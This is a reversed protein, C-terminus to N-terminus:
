PDQPPLDDQIVWTHGTDGCPDKHSPSLTPPDFDSSPIHRHFCLDSLLFSAVSQLHLFPGRAWFRLCRLFSPVTLFCTRGEAGLHGCGQGCRSTLGM